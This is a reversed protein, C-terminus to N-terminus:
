PSAATGPVSRSVSFTGSRGTTCAFIGSVSASKKSVDGTYDCQSARVVSASQGTFHAERLEATFTGSDGWANWYSGNVQDGSHTLSLRLWGLDGNAFREPGQYFGTLDVDGSPSPPAGTSPPAPSQGEPAAPSEGGACGLATVGAWVIMLSLKLRGATTM